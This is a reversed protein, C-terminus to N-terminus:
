LYKKTPGYWRPKAEGLKEVPEEPFNITPSMSSLGDEVVGSSNAFSCERMARPLLSEEISVHHLSTTLDFGSTASAMRAPLTLTTLLSTPFTIFFLRPVASANDTLFSKNSIMVAPTQCSMSSRPDIASYYVCTHSKTLKILRPGQIGLFCDVGKKGLQQFDRRRRARGLPCHPLCPDLESPFVQSHSTLSAGTTIVVHTLRSTYKLEDTVALGGNPTTKHTLLDTLAGKKDEGIIPLALEILKARTQTPTRSAAPIDYFDEQGNMLAVHFEWFKEPCLRVVQPFPSTMFRDSRIGNLGTSVLPKCPSVALIAEHVLTSANHWPQVQQRIIVKVKGNYKGGKEILPKVSAELNNTM